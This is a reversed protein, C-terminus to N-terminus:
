HKQKTIDGLQLIWIQLNDLSPSLLQQFAKEIEMAMSGWNEVSVDLTIVNEDVARM